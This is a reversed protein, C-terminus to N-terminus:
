AWRAGLQTLKSYATTFDRFFLQQDKAYANIYKLCEEDEPLVHDSPLGAAIMM